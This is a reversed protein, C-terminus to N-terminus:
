PSQTQDTVETDRTRKMGLGAQWERGQDIREKLYITRPDEEPNNLVHARYQYEARTLSIGLNVAVFQYLHQPETGNAARILPGLRGPIGDELDVVHDVLSGGAGMELCGICLSIMPCARIHIEPLYRKMLEVDMMCEFCMPMFCFCCHEERCSEDGCNVCCFAPAGSDEMHTFQIAAAYCNRLHTDNIRDYRDQGAILATTALQGPLLGEAGHMSRHKALDSIQQEPIGTVWAYGRDLSGPQAQRFRDWPYRMIERAKEDIEEQQHEQAAARTELLKMFPSLHQNAADALMDATVRPAM